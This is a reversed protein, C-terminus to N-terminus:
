FVRNPRTGSNRGLTYRVVASNVKFIFAPQRAAATPHPTNIPAIRLQANAAVYFSLNEKFQATM